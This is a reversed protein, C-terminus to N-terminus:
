LTNLKINIGTKVFSKNQNFHTKIIKSSTNIKYSLKYSNPM